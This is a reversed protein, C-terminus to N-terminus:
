QSAISSRDIPYRESWVRARAEAELQEDENVRSQLEEYRDVIEPHEDARLSDQALIYWMLARTRDQRVLRGEWYLDGLYAESPPHRKRAAAMLWKLGQQPNQRVGEGRINMGGLAFQAAPHGYTTAIKLYLRAALAPDRRIGAPEVGTAHYDAIRLMSDVMIRLRNQDPEEPDYADAVRSYYSYATAHDKPVGRGTRYIHGLYWDAVINGEDSARRFFRMAREYNGSNYARKAKKLDDTWFPIIDIDPIKLPPLKPRYSFFEASEEDDAAYAPLTWGGAHLVAVLLFVIRALRCL